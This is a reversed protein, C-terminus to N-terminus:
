GSRMLTAASRSTHSTSRRVGDIDKGLSYIGGLDTSVKELDTLSNVLKYGTIQRVLGSYSPSTWSANARLKGPKYSGNIDYFASVIGRSASRDVTGNNTVSGGNDIAAADARPTLNGRGTNKLKAAAGTIL